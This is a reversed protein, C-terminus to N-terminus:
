ISIVLWRRFPRARMSCWGFQERRSSTPSAGGRGSRGRGRTWPRCRIRREIPTWWVPALDADAQEFTFSQGVLPRMDNDMLWTALLKPDTLARWVKTPAHPLDYEMSLSHTEAKANM